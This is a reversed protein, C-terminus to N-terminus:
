RMEIKILKTREIVEYELDRDTGDLEHDILIEHIAVTKDGDLNRAKLMFQNPEYMKVFWGSSVPTILLKEQDKLYTVYAHVIEGFVNKVIEGSLYIHSSKLRAGKM